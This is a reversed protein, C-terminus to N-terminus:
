DARRLRAVYFGDLGDLPLLFAGPGAPRQPLGSVVPEPAFEGHRGLFAAVREPGEEPTLACVAYVLVGGPEVLDAARELLRDQLRVGEALDVDSFRLAIEPHGRLTGTGSCPADLLVHAAPAVGPVPESLDAVRHRAEVGLRTLNRGAQEVKRPDREIAEVRAGTAALAATKVGRGSCLDLVRAGSPADLIRTVAFSAPNMPQVAGDRFAPLDGLRASPRVQLTGPLPGPAVESGDAALREAADGAHDVLWLPAPARMASVAREAQPGLAAEIRRWIPDPLSARVAPSPDAPPEVRRLVANVLGTLRPHRARVVDVWASVAAHPPTGRILKEYAGLRLAELVDDPLADPDRLRPALAADLWIRWRLSGYVLDTALARERAALGSADLARGLARSLLAGRTVHRATELAVDRADARANAMM